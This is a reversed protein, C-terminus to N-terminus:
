VAEKDPTANQIPETGSESDARSYFLLRMEGTNAVEGRQNVVDIAFAISGARGSRSPQKDVAEAECHVTDGLLVPRAFTFSMSLAARAGEEWVANMLGTAIAIAIPGHAIRVGFPSAEAFTASMHMENFDGSLGAWQAVQVEGITRSATRFRDGIEIDEWYRKTV